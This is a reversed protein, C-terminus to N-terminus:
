GLAEVLAAAAAVPSPASWIGAIVAVGHVGTAVVAGVRDVCIGGIALVPLAGVVDALADVGLPGPLNAKSTTAFIPGVGAYDAGGRVARQVGVRDRCTAGIMLDPALRRATAVSLDDVGLHVGHAGAALAVDLRDNVVVTVDLELVRETLEVLERTCLEKDRVQFGDVGVEVLAPLLAM